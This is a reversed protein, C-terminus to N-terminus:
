NAKSRCRVRASYTSSVNSAGAWSFRTNAISRCDIQASYKSSVHRAWLSSILSSSSSLCVMSEWYPNRVHNTGVSFIRTNACASYSSSIHNASPTSIRTYTDVILNM